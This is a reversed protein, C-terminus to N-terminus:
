LSSGRKMAKACFTPTMGFAAALGHAGFIKAELDAVDQEDVDDTVRLEQDLFLLLPKVLESLDHQGRPLHALGRLFLEHPQWAISIVASEAPNWDNACLDPHHDLASIKLRQRPVPRVRTLM